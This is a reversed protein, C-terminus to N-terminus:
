TLLKPFDCCCFLRHIRFSFYLFDLSGLLSGDKQGFKEVVASLSLIVISGRVDMKRVFKVLASECSNPFGVM